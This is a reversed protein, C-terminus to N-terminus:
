LFRRIPSQGIKHLRSPAKWPGGLVLWHIAAHRDDVAFFFKSSGSTGSMASNPEHGQLSWSSARPTLARAGLRHPAWDPQRCLGRWSSLTSSLLELLASAAQRTRALLLGVLMGVSPMDRGLSGKKYSSGNQRPALRRLFNQQWCSIPGCSVVQLFLNQKIPHRHVDESVHRWRINQFLDLRIIESIAQFNIPRSIRALKTTFYALPCIKTLFFRM